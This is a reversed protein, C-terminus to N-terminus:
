GRGREREFQCLFETIEVHRHASELDDGWATIGHGQIVLAPVDRHEALYRGVDGAIHSVDTHNAFVPLIGVADEAWLGWGKLMELGRFTLTGPLDGSARVLTSAVTHVHLVAQAKAVRGYVALHISTEASATRGPGAALLGGDLDVEVFDDPGLLGKDKGSATILVRDGTDSASVRMSLNGATGLLWGAGHYRKALESLARRAPETESSLGPTGSM